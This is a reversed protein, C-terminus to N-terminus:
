LFTITKQSIVLTVIFSYSSISFIKRLYYFILLNRQIECMSWTLLIFLFVIYVILMTKSRLRHKKWSPRITNRKLQFIWWSKNFNHFNHNIHPQKLIMKEYRLYSKSLFKQFVKFNFLRQFTFVLLFDLENQKREWM